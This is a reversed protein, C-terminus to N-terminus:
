KSQATYEITVHATYVLEGFSSVSEPTEEAVAPANVSASNYRLGSTLATKENMAYGANAANQSLIAGEAVSVPTLKLTLKEEYIKKRENANDCARSIAKQKLAERDTYEFEIGGLQVEAFSDVASAVIQFEKEDLLTVRITNEVRYSRAKDSFLGFKPTSSFKSAQIRDAGIGQQKLRDALKSRMESNSRLAEALSKNETTVRLTVVAHHVPVRIEAEGTVSVIKPVSSLFQALEPATGKIEPEARVIVSAALLCALSAVLKKMNKTPRPKNM